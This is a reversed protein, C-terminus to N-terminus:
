PVVGADALVGREGGLEAVELALHGVQALEEAEGRSTAPASVHVLTAFRAFNGYPVREKASTAPRM